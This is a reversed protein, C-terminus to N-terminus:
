AVCCLATKCGVQECHDQLRQQIEVFSVCRSEPYVSILSYLFFITATLLLSRENLSREFCAPQCFLMILDLIQGLDM